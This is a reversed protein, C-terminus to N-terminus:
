KRKVRVPVQEIVTVGASQKGELKLTLEEVLQDETALFPQIGFTVTYDFAAKPNGGLAQWFDGISQLRGPQLTGTPVTANQSKLKGQLIEGPLKTHRLLVGMTDGLLRHEEEAKSVSGDGIWATVLYSCDVRVWPSQSRVKGGDIREVLRENSRLDVNERLDYLFLNIAPTSFTQRFQANPTDFSVNLNSIGMERELLARISKDLDDIM